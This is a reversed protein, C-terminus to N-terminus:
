NELLKWDPVNLPDGYVVQFATSTAVKLIVVIDEETFGMKLFMACAGIMLSHEIDEFQDDALHIWTKGHQDVLDNALAIGLRVLKQVENEENEM